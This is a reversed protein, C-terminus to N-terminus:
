EEKDFIILDYPYGLLGLLFKFKNWSLTHKNELRSKDNNMDTKKDEGYLDKLEGLTMKRKLMLSKIIVMLEDDENDIELKLPQDDSAARTKPLIVKHDKKPVHEHKIRKLRVKGDLVYLCSVNPVRDNRDFIGLFIYYVGNIVVNQYRKLVYDKGFINLVYNHIGQNKDYM